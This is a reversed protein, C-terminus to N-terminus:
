LQLQPAATQLGHGGKVPVRSAPGCAFFQSVPLVPFSGLPAQEMQQSLLGAKLQEHLHKSSQSQTCAQAGTRAVPQATSM